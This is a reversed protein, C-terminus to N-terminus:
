SWTLKSEEAEVQNYAKAGYSIEEYL